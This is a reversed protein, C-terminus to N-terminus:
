ATAKKKSDLEISQMLDNGNDMIQQSLNATCDISDADKHRSDVVLNDLALRMLEM